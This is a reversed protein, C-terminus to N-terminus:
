DITSYRWCVRYLSVYTYISTYRYVSPDNELPHMSHVNKRQKALMREPKLQAPHNPRNSIISCFAWENRILGIRLERGTCM